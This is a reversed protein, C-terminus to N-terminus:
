SHKIAVIRAFSSMRNQQLFTQFAERTEGDAALLQKEFVSLPLLPDQQLHALVIEVDLVGPTSVELLRFGANTLLLELGRLSFCNTRDPPYIYLNRLGLVAMDFGSCVAATVFLLGGDTLYRAIAGLLVAPDPVRDLSELLVAAHVPNDSDLKSPTLRKAQSSGLPVGMVLEMEDVPLVNVFSGSAELLATFDSPPTVVEMLRAQSVGQLRLTSQIWELKPGYVNEIRSQTIGHHFAEPSRRFRSVEALLRAWQTSVTIQHLFCSACSPCRVYGLDGVEGLPKLKSRCAPCEQRSLPERLMTRTSSICYARYSQLGDLPKVSSLPFAFSTQVTIYDRM